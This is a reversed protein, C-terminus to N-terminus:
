FKGLGLKKVFVHDCEVNCRFHLNCYEVKNETLKHLKMTM